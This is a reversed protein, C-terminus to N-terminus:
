SLKINQKYDKKLVKNIIKKYEEKSKACVLLNDYYILISTIYGFYKVMLM